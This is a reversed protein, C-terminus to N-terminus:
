CPHPLNEYSEPPERNPNPSPTAAPQIRGALRFGRHGGHARLGKVVFALLEETIVLDRPSHWFCRAWFERYLRNALAIRESLTRPTPSTQTPNARDSMTEERGIAFPAAM